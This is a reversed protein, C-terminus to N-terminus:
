VGEAGSTPLAFLSRANADTAREIRELPMGFLTALTRAVETVLAPENRQGRRSQPALFPADTEILLRDLPIDRIATHLEGANPFTVIGTVSVFLGREVYALGDERTGSFCHVVGRLERPAHSLFARFEEHANRVHFIIPKGADMALTVFRELAAVQRHLSPARDSHEFGVEGLAVVRPHSLWGRVDHFVRDSLKGVDQPHVGVAAFVDAAHEALAVAKASEAHDTGPNVIQRVGAARARALVESRDADFQHFSLHCHTDIM